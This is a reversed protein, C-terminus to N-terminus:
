NTLHREIEFLPPGITPDKAGKGKEVQKVSSMVTSHDRSFFEGIKLYPMRLQKRCLYMAIKRPLVCEKQQSKGTIDETKMRFYHAVQKLIKEPTLRSSGEERILDQLLHSVTPTDLTLQSQHLRLALAELARILSTLSQFTELLYQTLIESLPLSLSQARKKLIEKCTESSALSCPLTIGWEFRSKLREEVGELRQPAVRASLVIQIGQTHLRNFTHFLEEQTTTKGKLLHVDDMILCDLDRYSLRFDQLSSTRFARIVHETFTECRVFTVNKGTEKLLHATAMLLHTKGSGSPGYLFIPNYTADIHSLLDCALFPKESPIFQDFTAHSALHDPSFYQKQSPAEPAEKKKRPPYPEGKLYFHLKIPKGNSSLLKETVHEKYWLIQFSDNADLHLNAADFKLIKLPRLWRDVTERGLSHELTKLFTTWAKM